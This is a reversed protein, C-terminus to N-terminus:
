RARLIRSSSRLQKVYAEPEVNAFSELPKLKDFFARAELVPERQIDKEVSRRILESISVGHSRSRAKLTKYLEDHLYIQTRHMETAM